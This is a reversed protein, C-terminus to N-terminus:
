RMGIADDWINTQTAYPAALKKQFYSYVEYGNQYMLNIQMLPTIFHGGHGPCDPCETLYNMRKRLCINIFWLVYGCAFGFVESFGSADMHTTWISPGAM